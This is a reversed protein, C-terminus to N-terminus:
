LSKLAIIEAKLSEIKLDKRTIKATSEVDKTELEEIRTEYLKIIKATKEKTESYLKEAHLSGVDSKNDNLSFNNFIDNFFTQPSVELIDLINDLYKAWTLSKGAELRLYASLDINLKEAMELTKLGKTIRLTKIKLAIQRHM